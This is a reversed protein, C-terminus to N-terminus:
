CPVQDWGDSSSPCIDGFPHNIYADNQLCTLDVFFFHLVYSTERSKPFLVTNTIFVNRLLRCILLTLLQWQNQLSKGETRKCKQPNRTLIVCFFCCTRSKVDLKVSTRSPFLFATQLKRKYQYHCDLTIRFSVLYYWIHEYRTYVMKSNFLLLAPM